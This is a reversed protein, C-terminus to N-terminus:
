AELAIPEELEPVDFDEEETESDSSAVLQSFQHTKVDGRKIHM